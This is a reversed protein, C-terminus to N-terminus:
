LGQWNGEHLRQTSAACPSKHDIQHICISSIIKCGPHSANYLSRSFRCKIYKCYVKTGNSYLLRSMSEWCRQQRLQSTNDGSNNNCIYKESLMSFSFVM